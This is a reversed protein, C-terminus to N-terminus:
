VGRLRRARRRKNLGRSSPKHRALRLALSLRRGLRQALGRALLGAPNFGRRAVQAYPSPIPVILTEPPLRDWGAITAQGLMLDVLAPGLTHDPQSKWRVIADRLPGGYAFAGTARTWPPPAVLCGGCTHDGGGPPPTLYVGGCRPCAHDTGVVLGTRCPACLSGQPTPADCAACRPPWVLDLLPNLM